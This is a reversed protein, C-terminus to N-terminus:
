TFTEVVERTDYEMRDVGIFISMSLIIVTQALSPLIFEKLWTKIRQTTNRNSDWQSVRHNGHNTVVIATVKNMVMEM